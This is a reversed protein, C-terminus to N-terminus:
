DAAVVKRDTPGAPRGQQAEITFRQWGWVVIRYLLLMGLIGAYILPKRIDKKVLWIYHIVGAIATVYILRHLAQWKKGLWRISRQTSTLALPIM